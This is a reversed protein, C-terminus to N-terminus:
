EWQQEGVIKIYNKDKPTIHKINFKMGNFIGSKVVFSHKPKPIFEPYCNRIIVTISTKDTELNGLEVDKQSPEYIEAFSDFVEESSFGPEPGSQTDDTFSIYDHMDNMRTM